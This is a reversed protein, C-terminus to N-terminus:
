KKICSNKKVHQIQCIIKAVVISQIRICSTIKKTKIRADSLQWTRKIFTMNKEILFTLCWKKLM